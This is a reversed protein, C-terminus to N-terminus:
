YMTIHKYGMVRLMDTVKLAYMAGSTMVRALPSPWPRAASMQLRPHTTMSITVPLTLPAGVGPPPVESPCQANVSCYNISQNNMVFLTSVLYHVNNSVFIKDMSLFLLILVFSLGPFLYKYAIRWLSSKPTFKLLM